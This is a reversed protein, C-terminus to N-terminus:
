AYLLTCYKRGNSMEERIRRKPHEEDVRGRLPSQIKGLGLCERWSKGRLKPM